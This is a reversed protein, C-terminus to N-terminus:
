RRVGICQLIFRCAALDRTAGLQEFADIARSVESGAEEIRGQDYWFEAQLRSAHGLLYLDDIAHSKAREVHAQADDFRKEEFFLVFALRHHIWFLQIRWNFPSAIGLATEFHKIAKKAEGKSRCISGLLRYCECARLQDGKGLTVWRAEEPDPEDPNFAVSLRRKTVHSPPSPTPDKPRFYDRFPAFMTVLGSSRSTLSLTCLTDLISTRDPITPFLWDLNNEDIGQPFFAIVELIEQADPGLGRFMPSTLSLEISAALSEKRRTHLMGTRQSEWEEILEDVDLANDNAVTALLTISLPHFDLQELINNVLDSEECDSYSYFMGRAAMMPLTPIDVLKCTPPAASIRSTLCLCINSFSSLEEVVERVERGNAGQPDLISEANDLVIIMERSSLFPRLPTLDKPNEVGAGTVVSLRDLFHARSAPLRDCRIFRCNDGFRRKIRDHYLVAQAISTKGIGPPGVLALPTLNEALGVITEILEDRGFVTRPPYPPM